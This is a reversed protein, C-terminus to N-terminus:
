RIPKQLAAIRDAVDRYDINMAYVQSFSKLAAAPEGASEQAVGLDYRLALISEPEISPTLLAREYWIAAIGPQGKEMFALGLLTCCQMMYRFPKGNDTAKAVKQFESIAEDLLGMERFATGLNYHTELDEDEAGMEGLEARFEDFVEKLPGSEGPAAPQAHAKPPPAPAAAESRSPVLADLGLEDIEKALDSLFQDSAFGAAPPATSSNHAAAAPQPEKAPEAEPKQVAIPIDPPKQDYAPVLPEPELILEFDQQLEFEPEPHAPQPPAAPPKHAVPPQPAVSPQPVVPVPHQAVPAPIPEPEAPLALEASIDAFPDLEEEHVPQHAPERVPEHAQAEVPLEFSSVEHTEAAPTSAPEEEISFEEDAVPEAAIPVASVEPPAAPEHAPRAPPPKVAPEAPHIDELMSAWEDSLDVEHVEASESSDTAAVPQLPASETLDFEAVPTEAEAPAPAELVPEPQAAVEALSVEPITGPAEHQVPAASAALEADTLGAARQFRRRLEGFREAGRQDNRDIHIQELQSALEATRRDDGAGLVFDLLKELTPTHRPARRLIAELLGIAKQTLGYSAFLDVDTLSQAIFKQTEDDLPPESSASVASPKDGTVPGFSEAVDPRLKPAPAKPIEAQLPESPVVPPPEAALLGMKRLLSDLKRKASDSDPQRDVLQEFITKAREFEGAVVLADGLHALADPLRFSDSTRGYFDVLWELPEIRGPLKAALENQLRGIVEHEGADIMPVRIQGIIATARDSQGSELLSEVIKQAPGFNKNDAGLVRLALATAKDWNTSKLYLDLLLETQEGGKELDPVHELLEAAQTFNGQSSFSRARVIAAPLCAPDIKLAKDALKESEAQDGRALARQAASVYAEVAERSQGMAQYLDALRVQIRLNDPEALLLKKLLGVAEPQRNNKLHIEALQLFLPRAESMVGQQVYLDALKELPRIEEPALKAIRKYVAIAKTLFGDGVFIQALREFYDIAQFTEGQRIYLEGITMLTVQDRPEFKLIQQYEAIAQPVKGQNLLKQAAEVIKSKTYAM